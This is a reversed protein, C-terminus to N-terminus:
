LTLPVSNFPLLYGNRGPSLPILDLRVTSPINVANLYFSEIQPNKLNLYFHQNVLMGFTNNDAFLPEPGFRACFMALNALVASICYHLTALHFNGIKDHKIKNYSDYWPLSGTPSSSTWLGFPVEAPFSPFATLGFEFDKLHLKPLLKIYDNTTYRSTAFVGYVKDMYTRWYSELETCALLLLERTKHSYASLGSGNPEIYLFLDDLKSILLRLAQQAFRIEAETYNLSDIVIDVNYLGPRWVGEICDGVNNIMTTINKAGFTNKIWDELTGSKGESIALENQVTHWSTKQGFYHVFHTPTEFAYGLPYRVKFSPDFGNPVATIEYTLATM